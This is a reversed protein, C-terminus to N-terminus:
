TYTYILKINTNFNSISLVFIALSFQSHSLLLHIHIYSSFNSLLWDFHQARKRTCCWISQVSATIRLNMILLPLSFSLSLPSHSYLSCQLVNIHRSARLLNYGNSGQRILQFVLGLLNTINQM